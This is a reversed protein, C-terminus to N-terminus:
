CLKIGIAVVGYSAIQENTYYLNMDTPNAVEDPAYGISVKDYNNYLEAFNAFVQLNTVQVCLQEGTTNNTFLITDGININKRREDYLRMEVTKTGSKIKNFPENHLNMTHQM